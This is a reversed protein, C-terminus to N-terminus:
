NVIDDDDANELLSNRGRKLMLDVENMQDEKNNRREIVNILYEKEEENM